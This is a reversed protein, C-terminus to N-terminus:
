EFAAAVVAPRLIDKDPRRILWFLWSALVAGIICFLALAGATSAMQVGAMSFVQTGLMLLFIILAIAVGAIVGALLYGGAKRSGRRYLLRHAPLGFVLMFPWGIVAGMIGGGWLAQVPFSSYGGQAATLLTGIIAFALFLLFGALPGCAVAALLLRARTAGEFQPKATAEAM